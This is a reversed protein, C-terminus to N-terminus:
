NTIANFYVLVINALPSPKKCNLSFIKSTLLTAIFLDNHQFFKPVWIEINKAEFCYDAGIAILFILIRPATKSSGAVFCQWDLRNPGFPSIQCHQKAPLELVAEPIKIKKLQQPHWVEMKASIWQQRLARFHQRLLENRLPIDLM